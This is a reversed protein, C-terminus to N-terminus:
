EDPAADMMDDFGGGETAGENAGETAGEMTGEIVGERVFQCDTWVFGAAESRKERAAIIRSIKVWRQM